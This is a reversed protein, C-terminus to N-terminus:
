RNRNSAGSAEEKGRPREGKRLQTPIHSGAAPSPDFLTYRSVTVMNPLAAAHDLVRSTNCRVYSRPLVDSIRQSCGPERKLIVKAIPPQSPGDKVEM